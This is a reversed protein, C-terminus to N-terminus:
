NNHYKKVKQKDTISNIKEDILRDANLIMELVKKKDNYDLTTKFLYIFENKLNDIYDCIIIADEDKINDDELIRVKCYGFYELPNYNLDKTDNYQEDLKKQYINKLEIKRKMNKININNDSPNMPKKVVKKNKYNNLKQKVSLLLNHSFESIMQEKLKFDQVSNINNIFNILKDIEIIEKKFLDFYKPNLLDVKLSNLENVSNNLKEDLDILCVIKYLKNIYHDYQKLKFVLSNIDNVKINDIKDLYKSYKKNIEKYQYKELKIKLLDLYDFIINEKYNIYKRIVKGKKIISKFQEDIDKKFEYDGYEKHFINKLYIYNDM